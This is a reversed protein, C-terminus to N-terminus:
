VAAHQVAWRALEPRRRLGTKRRVRALHDQVTRSSLFLQKGIENDTLGDAVLRVVELERAALLPRV